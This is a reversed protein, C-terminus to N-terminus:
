RTAPNFGIVDSGFSPAVSSMIRLAAGFGGSVAGARVGAPHRAELRATRLMSLNLIEGVLDM